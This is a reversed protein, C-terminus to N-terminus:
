DNSPLCRQYKIIRFLFSDVDFFLQAKNSNVDFGPLGEMCQLPIVPNVNWYGVSTENKLRTFSDNMIAPFLNLLM